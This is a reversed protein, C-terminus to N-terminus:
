DESDTAYLGADEADATLFDLIEHQKRRHDEQFALLDTLLIRRHRSNPMKEYPISGNELMKILTPRSFGLFDAAQQTTLKHDVPTLAVAQNRAMADAVKVLTEFVERPLSVQQGDPGLLMAEAGANSLFKSFDILEELDSSGPPIVMQSKDTRPRTSETTEM